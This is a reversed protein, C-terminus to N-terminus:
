QLHQQPGDTGGAGSQGPRTLERQPREQGPSDVQGLGFRDQAHDVGVAGGREVGRQALKGAPQCAWQM